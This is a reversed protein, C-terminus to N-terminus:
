LQNKEIMIGQNKSIEIASDNSIKTTKETFELSLKTLILEYAQVNTMGCNLYATFMGCEKSAENIGKKFENADYESIEVLNETLLGIPEAFMTEIDRNELEVENSEVEETQNKCEDCM